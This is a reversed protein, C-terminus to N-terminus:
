NNYAVSALGQPIDRGQIMSRSQINLAIASKKGTTAMFSLPVQTRNNINFYVKENSNLSAQSLYNQKFTAYDGFNNKNFKLLADRSVLLYNNSYNLSTSFLNIDFKFRSDVISAPQLMVGTIGAYNGTGIGLFDQAVSKNSIITNILVAILLYYKKKM